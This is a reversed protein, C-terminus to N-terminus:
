RITLKSNILIDNISLETSNFSTLDESVTDSKIKGKFDLSNGESYQKNNLVAPMTFGDINGSYIGNVKIKINGNEELIDYQNYDGTNGVPVTLSGQNVNDTVVGVRFGDGDVLRSYFRNSSVGNNISIEESNTIADNSLAAMNLKWVLSNPNYVQQSNGCIDGDLVLVPCGGDSYDIVPTDIPVNVTDGNEDVRTAISNRTLKYDGATDGPYVTFATGVKYAGPTYAFKISM